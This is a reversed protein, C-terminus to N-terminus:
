MSYSKKEAPSHIVQFCTQGHRTEVTLSKRMTPHSSSHAEFAIEQMGLPLKLRTYHISHPVTQWNRTDAQETIFNIGGVILGLAANQRRVQHELTKKLATRLLSKSLEWVMRQHLLQVAVANVDEALELRQVHGSGYQLNASQYILSREEYMPTAVKIIQLATLSNRQRADGPMPFPFTMKLAQNQFHVIGGKGPLITFTLSREAKIPGLGNNWLVVCDGKGRHSEKAPDYSLKLMKQYRRVEEHLGTRYAVYLLDKQLQVPASIGFLKCYSTRYTDLANRYAIFANNYEGSAQYILGMLTHIFADKTYRHDGSYKDSLQKLRINLRRCEILASSLDGLQLFNLAKYYYLLLLEHDEGFYETINSNVVFSLAESAPRSVQIACIDHAMEFFENSKEWDGTLHNLVGRNLYHLLRDKRRDVRKRKALLADAEVFKGSIFLDNFRAHKQYYTSLCSQLGLIGSLFICKLTRRLAISGCKERFYRHEM